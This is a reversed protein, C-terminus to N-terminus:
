KINQIKYKEAFMAYFTTWKNPKGITGFSNTQKSLTGDLLNIHNYRHNEM